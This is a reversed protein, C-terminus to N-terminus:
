CSTSIRLTHNLAIKIEEDTINTMNLLNKAFVSMLDFDFNKSDFRTLDCYFGHGSSISDIKMKDVLDSSSIVTRYYNEYHSPLYNTFIPTVVQSATRGADIGLDKKSLINVQDCVLRIKHEPSVFKVFMFFLEIPLNM